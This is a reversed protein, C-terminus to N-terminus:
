DAGIAEDSEQESLSLAPSDADCAPERLFTSTVDVAGLHQITRRGLLVPYLMNSRDRLSFQEEHITDGICVKMLVVPRLDKGGAGVAVFDRYMPREIRKFVEKSSDEDELNVTFRVWEKGDRNFREIDEAHMSSTLAGTDLKAKVDIEWPQVSIEEIWGLTGNAWVPLSFLCSCIITLLARQKLRYLEM